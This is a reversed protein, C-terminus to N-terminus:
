PRIIVWYLYEPAYERQLLEQIDGYTVLARQRCTEALSIIREEEIVEAAADDAVDWVTRDVCGLRKLLRAKTRRFQDEYTDTERIKELTTAIIRRVEDAMEPAVLGEITFEHHDMFHFIHASLGYSAGLRERVEEFLIREVTEALLFLVHPNEQRPLIRHLRVLASQAGRMGSWELLSIDREPQRPEPWRAPPLPRPHRVGWPAGQAFLDAFTCAESLTIDGAFVLAVNGLHYYEDHFWRFDDRIIQTVTEVWGHPSEMRGMPHDHYIDRRTLKVFEAQRESHVNEWIERIVVDREKRFDEERVLPHFIMDRLVEIATHFEDKLVKGVFRTGDFGTAANLSNLFIDEKVRQIDEGRPFRETGQFPIHEFFHALGEKTLPDDRAGVFLVVQVVVWNEVQSVQKTYVPVGSASV